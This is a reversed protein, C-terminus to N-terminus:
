AWYFGNRFLALFDSICQTLNHLPEVDPPSMRVQCGLKLGVLM